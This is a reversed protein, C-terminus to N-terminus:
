RKRGAARVAAIAAAKWTKFRGGKPANAMGACAGACWTWGDYSKGCRHVTIRGSQWCGGCYCRGYQTWLRGACRITRRKM